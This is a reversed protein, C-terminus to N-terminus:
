DAPTGKEAEISFVVYMDPKDGFSNAVQELFMKTLM